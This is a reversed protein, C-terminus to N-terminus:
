KKRRLLYAIVLLGAIASVIEFGPEEPETAIIFYGINTKSEGSIVDKVTTEVKYQDKQYGSSDLGGRLWISSPIYTDNEHFENWDLDEYVINNDNDFVKLSYKLWVDYIGDKHEADFNSTEYYMWVTDGSDYTANPQIDYDQDSRIDSCFIIDTVYLGEKLDEFYPTIDIVSINTANEFAWNTRTPKAGVPLGGAYMNYDLPLWVGSDDTLYYLKLPTNYYKSIGSEISDTNNEDGIYVAPFMHDETLYIRPTGGISEILAALLLAHDDCDGAGATLTDSPKAMYDFGSPDSVYEINDEVYDFLDCVQYINYAGPHNKAVQIATNRITPDIPFIIKNIQVFNSGRDSQYIPERKKIVSNVSIETTNDILEKKYDYWKGKDSKAMLAFGEKFFFSDVDGAIYVSIMGIYKKEGPNITLGTESSIWGSEPLGETQVGYEYVFLANDGRNELWLKIVGISYDNFESFEKYSIFSYGPQIYGGPTPKLEFDYPQYSPVEPTILEVESIEANAIVPTSIIIISVIMSTAILAFIIGRKM